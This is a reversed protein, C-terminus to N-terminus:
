KYRGRIQEYVEPGVPSSNRSGERLFINYIGTTKGFDGGAAKIKLWLAWDEYVPWADFGGVDMFIEKKVPCGVILHNGDILRERPEMYRPVNPYAGEWSQTTMPQLVDEPEVIREAFDKDLWDDADLFVLRDGSANEAGRNRAAALTRGHEWLVEVPITQSHASTMAWEFYQRNRELWEDNYTAIIISIM